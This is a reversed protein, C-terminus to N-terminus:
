CFIGRKMLVISSTVRFDIFFAAHGLHFDDGALHFQNVQFSYFKSYCM